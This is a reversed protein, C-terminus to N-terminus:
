KRQLGLMLPSNKHIQTKRKIIKQAVLQKEYETLKKYPNSSNIEELSGMNNHNQIANTCLHFAIGKKATIHLIKGNSEDIFGGYKKTDSLFEAFRECRWPLPLSSGNQIYENKDNLQWLYMIRDQRSDKSNEKLTFIALMNHADQMFNFHYVYNNQKIKYLQEATQSNLIRIYSTEAQDQGTYNSITAIRSGDQNFQIFAIPPYKKLKIKEKGTKLNWIHLVEDYSYSAATDTKSHIAFSCVTREHILPIDYELCQEKRTTQMIYTKIPLAIKNLQDAPQKKQPDDIIQVTKYSVDDLNQRAFNMFYTITENFLINKKRLATILKKSLQTNDDECATNASNVIDLMNEQTLQFKNLFNNIYDPYATHSHYKKNIEKDILDVIAITYNNIPQQLEVFPEHEMAVIIHTVFSTILSLLILAHKM